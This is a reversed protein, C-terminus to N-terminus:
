DGHVGRRRDEGCSTVSTVSIEGTNRQDGEENEM